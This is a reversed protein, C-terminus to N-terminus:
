GYITINKLYYHNFLLINTENLANCIGSINEKFFSDLMVFNIEYKKKLNIIARHLQWAGSQKDTGQNVKGWIIVFADQKFSVM